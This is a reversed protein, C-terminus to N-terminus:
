KKKRCSKNYAERPSMWEDEGDIPQYPGTRGTAAIEAREKTMGTRMFSEVLAQHDAKRKEEKDRRRGDKIHYILAIIGILFCVIALILLIVSVLLRYDRLYIFSQLAILLFTASIPFFVRWLWKYVELMHCIIRKLDIFIGRSGM